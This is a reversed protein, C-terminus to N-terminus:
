LSVRAQSSRVRELAERLRDGPEGTPRRSEDLVRVADGALRLEAVLGAKRATATFHCASIIASPNVMPDASAFFILNSRDPSLETSQNPM